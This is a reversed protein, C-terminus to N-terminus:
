FRPSSRQPTTFPPPPTPSLSLPPCQPRSNPFLLTQLSSDPPVILDAIHPNTPTLPSLAQTRSDSAAALDPTCPLLASRNPDLTHADTLQLLLPTATCPDTPSCLRSHLPGCSLTLVTPDAPHPVLPAPTQPPGFHPHLPQSTGSTPPDEPYLPPSTRPDASTPDCPRPAHGRGGVLADADNGREREPEPEPAREPRRERAAAAAPRRM